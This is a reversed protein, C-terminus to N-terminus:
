TSQIADHSVRSILGVHRGFLQWRENRRIWVNMYSCLLLKGSDIGAVESNENGIVVALGARLAVKSTIRKFSRVRLRGDRILDLLVQKSASLNATSSVLLDDAWFAEPANVDARLFAEAEHQELDRVEKQTLEDTQEM